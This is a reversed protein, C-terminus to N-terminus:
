EQLAESQEVSRWLAKSHKEGVVCGLKSLHGGVTKGRKGGLFMAIINLRDANTESYIQYKCLIELIEILIDGDLFM